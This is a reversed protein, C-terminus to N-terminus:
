LWKALVNLLRDADPEDNYGQFSVRIFPQGNWIPLPVEIRADLLRQSLATVDVGNPLRAAFFQGLVSEDCIPDLGTLTQLRARTGIVLAHCRARVDDWNHQRQFRIAGPVSLYASLDRTGQWEHWNVFTSGTLYTAEEFGWSVVLPEILPQVQRRVHLFAAGKPACLWKHCAGVYVDAGLADLNLPLQGPAHAGDIITFMGAARARRIIEAIPFILATPSTLHSLFIMRTRDNVGSWFQDVFDTARFPLPIPQHVYRAGTKAALFRWTRDMAGYEHDTTLIEDGPRLQLSRAVVNVAVTPNPFFVLDDAAAGVLGALAARAAALRPIAERGLFQVPQQELERQLRQYEEFVPRPCAGFSGHNLYTWSPDLLFLDKLGM